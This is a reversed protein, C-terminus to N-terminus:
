AAVVTTLAGTKTIGQCPASTEGRQTLFELQRARKRLNKNMRRKDKRSPNRIDRSLATSTKEDELFAFLRDKGFESQYQECLARKFSKVGKSARRLLAVTYCRIYRPNHLQREAVFALHLSDKLRCEKEIRWQRQNEEQERKWDEWPPECLLNENM